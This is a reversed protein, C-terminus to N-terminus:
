WNRRFIIKNKLLEKYLNQKEKYTSLDRWKKLLEFLKLDTIDVRYFLMFLESMVENKMNEFSGFCLDITIDKHIVVTIISEKKEGIYYEDKNFLFKNRLIDSVYDDYKFVKYKNGINERYERATVYVNAKYADILLTPKEGKDLQKVIARELEPLSKNKKIVAKISDSFESFLDIKFKDFDIM